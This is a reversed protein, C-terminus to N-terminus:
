FISPIIEIIPLIKSAYIDVCSYRSSIIQLRVIRKWVHFRVYADGRLVIYRIAAIVQNPYIEDSIEAVLVRTVIRRAFSLYSVNRRM